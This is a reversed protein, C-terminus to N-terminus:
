KKEELENSIKQNLNNSTELLDCVNAEGLPIEPFALPYQINLQNALNIM